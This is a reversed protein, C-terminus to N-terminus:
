DRLTFALTRVLAEMVPREGVDGRVKGGEVTGGESGGVM